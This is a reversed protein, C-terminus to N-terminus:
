RRGRQALYTRGSAEMADVAQEPSMWGFTQSFRSADVIHDGFLSEALAGRGALRLPATILASPIPILGPGRGMGKRLATVIEATSVAEADAIGYAGSRSADPPAKLIAVIASALNGVSLLSRRNRAAGFPLPLPSAALRQLQGWNGKSEPGYIITPRLAVALRGTNALALAHGEAALKTRGYASIPHAPTEDTVPATMSHGGIVAITSLLIMTRVSPAARAAACLRATGRDNIEAFTEDAVGRVPLQGALHVVADCGALAASWDTKSDVPGVVVSGDPADNRSSRIAARPTMGAQTLVATVYRGVFGTAGTVLITTM